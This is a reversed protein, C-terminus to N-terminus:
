FSSPTYAAFSSLGAPILGSAYAHTADPVSIDQPFFNKIESDLTWNQGGDTTYWFQADFTGTVGSGSVLAGAAWGHTTTVMEIATLAGGPVTFQVEYSSWGDSTHYISATGGGTADVGETVAWCNNEDVCSIENFYFGQGTINVLTKWDSGENTVASIIGSYGSLIPNDRREFSVDYTGTAFDYRVYQSLHYKAVNGAKDFEFGLKSDTTTPFTGATVYGMNKSLFDGYRCGVQNLHSNHQKWRRGGDTTM